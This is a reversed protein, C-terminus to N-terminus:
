LLKENNKACNLFIQDLDILCFGYQVFFIIETLVSNKLKFIVRLKALPSVKRFQTQLFYTM